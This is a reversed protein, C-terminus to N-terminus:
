YCRIINTPLSTGLEIGTIFTPDCGMDVTIVKDGEEEPYGANGVTQCTDTALAPMSDLEWDSFLVTMAPDCPTTPTATGSPKPAFYQIGAGSTYFSELELRVYRVM